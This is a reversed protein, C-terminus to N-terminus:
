LPCGSKVSLDKLSTEGELRSGDPFIWTPYGNVNQDTCKKVEVTCEVYPVYQFSAGFAKKTNQCHPCWYAGYMTVKKGALCKAFADYQGPKPTGSQSAFWVGGALLLITVFVIISLATKNM